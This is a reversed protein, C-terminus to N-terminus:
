LKYRLRVRIMRHIMDSAVMTVTNAVGQFVHRHYLYYCQQYSFIFSRVPLLACYITHLRLILYLYYDDYVFSEDDHASSLTYYYSNYNTYRRVNNPRHIVRCPGTTPADAFSCAAIISRTPSKPGCGLWVRPHHPTRSPGHSPNLLLLYIHVTCRAFTLDSYAASLFRARM